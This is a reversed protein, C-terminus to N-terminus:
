HRRLLAVSPRVKAEGIALQLVRSREDPDAADFLEAVRSSPVERYLRRDNRFTEERWGQELLWYWAALTLGAQVSMRLDDKVIKAGLRPKPGAPPKARQKRVGLVGRVSDFLNMLRGGGLEM